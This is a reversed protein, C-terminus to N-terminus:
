AARADQEAIVSVSAIAAPHWICGSACDWGYYWNTLSNLRRSYAYPAIIIGQFQAAVEPWNIATDGRVQIGYEHTFLDLESGGVLTLIHATDALEITHEVRLSSLGFGEARCFSPWDDEGLVSVWLGVPKEFAHSPVRQISPTVTELRRHSYHRLEM